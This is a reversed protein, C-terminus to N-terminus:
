ELIKKVFLNKIKNEFKYYLTTLIASLVCAILVLLVILLRYHNSWSNLNLRNLLSAICFIYPFHNLFIYLSTKGLFDCLKNNFIKDFIDNGSVICILLIALAFVWLYDYGGYEETWVIPYYISIAFCILELFKVSAKGFVTLNVNKLKESLEFIIFGLSIMSFSRLFGTNIVSYFTCPQALNGYKKIIFGLCFMVIVPALYYIYTYYYKRIIPYLIWLAFFLASLYWIVGTLSIVTFGYNQGMSFDSLMLILNKLYLGSTWNYAYGCILIVILTSFVLCPFVAHLRKSIFSISEKFLECGTPCSIENLKKIRKALFIGSVIFFFEVGLYGGRASYPASILGSHFIFIIVAFIFRLFEITGNRRQM